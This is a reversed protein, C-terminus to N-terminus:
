HALTHHLDTISDYAHHQVVTHHYGTHHEPDHQHYNHHHYGFLSDHHHYLSDYHHQSSVTHHAISDNYSEMHFIADNMGQAAELNETKIIQQEQDTDSCSATGLALLALACTIKSIQMM